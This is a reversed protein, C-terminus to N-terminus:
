SVQDYLSPNADYVLAEDRMASRKDGHKKQYARLADKFEDITIYGNELDRKVPDFSPMFGAKTCILLQKAARINNGNREDFYALNYRSNMCGGIAALRLYHKAKKIDKEVEDCAFIEEGSFINGLWGYASACGREGARQFLEIAKMADKQFGKEGHWYYMALQEMTKADNREVGRNVRDMFEQDSDASPTRCFACVTRDKGNRIDEKKQAHVCGLCMRKGCCSRFQIQSEDFPLPLMCIPCEEREPPDKFLEEDFLEAARRKCEKKHKPRHAVQCDRSCYKVMKCATCRKLNIDDSEAKGCNACTTIATDTSSSM